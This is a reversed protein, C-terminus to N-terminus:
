FQNRTPGNGPGFGLDADAIEEASPTDDEKSRAAKLEDELSDVRDGLRAARTATEDLADLVFALQEATTLHSAPVKTRTDVAAELRDLVDDGIQPRAM